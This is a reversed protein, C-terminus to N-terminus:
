NDAQRLVTASTCRGSLIERSVQHNNIPLTGGPVLDDGRKHVLTPLAVCVVDRAVNPGDPFRPKLIM